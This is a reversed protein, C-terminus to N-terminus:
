LGDSIRTRAQPEHYAVSELDLHVDVSRSIHRDVPTSRVRWELNHFPDLEYLYQLATM